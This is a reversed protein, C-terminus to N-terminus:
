GNAVEEEEKTLELIKRGAESEANIVVTGKTRLEEGFIKMVAFHTKIEQNYDLHSLTPDACGDYMTQYGGLVRHLGHTLGLLYQVLALSDIENEEFIQSLLNREPLSLELDDFDRISKPEYEKIFELTRMLAYLDDIDSEKAAAM